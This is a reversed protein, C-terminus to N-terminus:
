PASNTSLSLLDEVTFTKMAHAVSAAFDGVPEHGIVKVLDAVFDDFGFSNEFDVFAGVEGTENDVVLLKFRTQNGASSLMRIM